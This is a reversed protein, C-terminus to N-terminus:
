EEDSWLKEFRLGTLGLHEYMRKFEYAPDYANEACLIEGRSTEPIKFLPTEPVRNAHFVCKKPGGIKMTQMSPHWESHERDLANICELVNMIYWTNNELPLPLLEGSMELLQAMEDHYRTQEDCAFPGGMGVGMFNGRKLKPECVFVEPPKWGELLRECDFLLPEQRTTEADTPLVYRYTKVDNRVSYITM